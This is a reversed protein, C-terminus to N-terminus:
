TAEASTQAPTILAKGQMGDTGVMESAQCLGISDTTLMSDNVAKAHMAPQKWKVSVCPHAVNGIFFSCGAVTFTDTDRLVTDGAKVKTNSSVASVTGGHPCQITASVTLVPAV